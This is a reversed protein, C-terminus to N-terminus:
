NEPLKLVKLQTSSHLDLLVLYPGPDQSRFLQRANVVFGSDSETMCQGSTQLVTKFKVRPTFTEFIM